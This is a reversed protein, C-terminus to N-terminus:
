NVGYPGGDSFSNDQGDVTKKDFKRKQSFFRGEREEKEAKQKSRFKVFFPLACIMGAILAFFATLFVPVNKLTFIGFSVDCRNELNFVIFAVFLVFVIIFEIFRLPM